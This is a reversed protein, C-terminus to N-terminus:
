RDKVRPAKAKHRRGQPDGIQAGTVAAPLYLFVAFAHLFSQLIGHLGGEASAAGNRATGAGVRSDVGSTEHTLRLADGWANGRFLDGQRQATAQRLVDGYTEESEWYFPLINARVPWSTEWNSSQHLDYTHSQVSILGSKEMEEIEELGFHPLIPAGTEKYTDKGVSSGVVFIVAPFDFEKLIPYALKYNSTYGDDFTICVPNHPLATGRNAYDILQYISVPQYGKEQLLEMQSRFNEETVSFGGGDDGVHHYMLVPVRVSNLRSLRESHFPNDGGQYQAYEAGLTRLHATDTDKTTVESTWWVLALLALLIGVLGAATLKEKM